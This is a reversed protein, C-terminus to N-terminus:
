EFAQRQLKPHEVALKQQADDVQFGQRNFGVHDRKQALKGAYEDHEAQNM